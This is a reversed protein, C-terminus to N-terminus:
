EQPQGPKQPQASVPDLGNSVPERLRTLSARSLGAPSGVWLHDRSATLATINSNSLGDALSFHRWSEGETRVLGELTGVWLERETALLTTIGNSPLRAVPDDQKIIEWPHDLSRLRCLGGQFTGAWLAGGFVELSSVWSDSLGSGLSFQEWSGTEPDLSILGARHTAVFTRGEFRAVDLVLRQDLAPKPRFVKWHGPPNALYFASQSGVWLNKQDNGLSSSWNKPWGQEKGLSTWRSGRWSQVV